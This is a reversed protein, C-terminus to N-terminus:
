EKKKKEVEVIHGYVNETIDWIMWDYWGLWAPFITVLHWLSHADILDYFFPPFDFIELSMGVTVIFTLLLPYLSYLKASRSFFSPLILHRFKVYQLHSLNITKGKNDDPSTEEEYYKSYLNYCVGILFCNQVLGVTINARMNYTYSWDTVLRYVHATYAAICVVTFLTRWFWYKDRYLNFLRAGLTHFSSLVTLGAFYYDLHETVQFDRIHFISSFIWAFITIITMAIVNNFQTKHKPDSAMKRAKWLKLLGLYNVYLNCLSFVVSVFEQIGFIRLFPWKGHFQYIEQNRKKREFTIVRQCQYDCNSQCNWLLLRLNWALPMRAFHWDGNYYKWEYRSEPKQFEERFEEQIVNYPNGYCTTQECQYICDQFAILSDGPSAGVIPLVLLLPIWSLMPVFM